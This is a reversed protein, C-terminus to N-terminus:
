GVGNDGGGELQRPPPVEDSWHLAEVVGPDNAIEPPRKTGEVEFIKPADANVTLQFV